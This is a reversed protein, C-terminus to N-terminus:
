GEAICSRFKKVISMVKYRDLHMHHMQRQSQLLYSQNSKCHSFLPKVSRFQLSM